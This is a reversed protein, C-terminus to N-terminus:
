FAISCVCAEAWPELNHEGQVAAHSGGCQSELGDGHSATPAEAAERSDVLSFVGMAVGDHFGKVIAGVNKNGERLGVVYRWCSSGGFALHLYRIRGGWAIATVKDTVEGACSQLEMPSLGARSSWKNLSALKRPTFRCEWDHLDEM